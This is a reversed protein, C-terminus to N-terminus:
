EFGHAEVAQLIANGSENGIRIKNVTVGTCHWSGVAFHNIIDIFELQLIYFIKM